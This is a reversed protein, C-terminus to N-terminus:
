KYLGSGAFRHQGIVHSEEEEEEEEELDEDFFLNEEIGGSGRQRSATLGFGVRLEEANYVSYYKRLLPEGLIFLKPGIPAEMDMTMFMPKCKSVVTDEPKAFPLSTAGVAQRRDLRAYDRPELTLTTTALEFHLEPGQGKCDGDGADHRLLEYLEPFVVSPVSVLSTGTDVIARCGEKCFDIVQGDVRLSKISIMWHGHEPEVVPVWALDGALREESWGGFTIESEEEDSDGLFVAFTRLSKGGWAGLSRAVMEVINFQDSNSLGRLGLGLVGDFEFTRFPDDSMDTAAIFRMQMCEKKLVPAHGVMGLDALLPPSVSRPVLAGVQDNAAASAQAVKEHFGASIAADSGDTTNGFCVIDEVMVGVIEGTGFSVTLQDRPQGPAVIEDGDIDVATKSASRKFRAHAKCTETRCYMSPLLLNGSGTDFVVTFKQAPSGVSLTGYYASKYYIAGGVNRMEMQQRKLPVKVLMQSTGLSGEKNQFSHRTRRVRPASSLEVSWLADVTQVAGRNTAVLAVICVVFLLFSRGRMGHRTM